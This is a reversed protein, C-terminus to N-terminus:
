SKFIGCLINDNYIVLMYMKTLWLKFQIKFFIFFMTYFDDNDIGRSALLKYLTWAHNINDDFSKDDCKLQM